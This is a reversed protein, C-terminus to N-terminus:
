GESYIIKLIIYLVILLLLLSLLAIKVIRVIIKRKRVKDATIIVEKAMNGGYHM